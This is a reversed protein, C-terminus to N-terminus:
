FMQWNYTGIKLPKKNEKKNEINIGPESITIQM